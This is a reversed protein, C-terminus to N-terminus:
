DDDDDYVAYRPIGAAYRPAEVRVSSLGTSGAYGAAALLVKDFPTLPDQNGYNIAADGIRRSSAGDAPAELMRKAVSLTVVELVDPRNAELLGEDDVWTRGIHARVIASADSLAALARKIDGDGTFERHMRVQLEPISAFAPLVM